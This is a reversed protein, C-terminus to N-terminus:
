LQLIRDKLVGFDVIKIEAVRFKRSDEDLLQEIGIETNCYCDMIRELAMSLRVVQSRNGAVEEEAKNLFHLVDSRPMARRANSHIEKIGGGSEQNSCIHRIVGSIRNEDTRHSSEDDKM